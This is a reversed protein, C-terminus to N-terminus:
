TVIDDSDDSDVSFTEFMLTGQRQSEMVVAQFSETIPTSGWEPLVSPLEGGAAPIQSRQFEVRCRAVSPSSELTESSLLSGLVVYFEQSDDCRFALLM